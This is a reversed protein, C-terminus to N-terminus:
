SPPEALARQEELLLRQVSSWQELVLPLDREAAALEGAEAAHQMHAATAALRVAGVALCSGKLKHAISRVDELVAGLTAQNLAAILPPTRDLFLELLRPSREEDSLEPAGTLSEVSLAPLASVTTQVASDPRPPPRPLSGSSLTRSAATWRALTSHLLDARLPKTLYDDMGAAMCKEREKLLVHATLALIPTHRGAPERRRIDRTADYGDMVPMQCDMLVAAYDGGLVAQVAEEGNCAIDAAYGLRELQQVAVFRNVENDDVVLIRRGSSSASAVRPTERQPGSGSAFSRTLADYLESARVPQAVAARVRAPIPGELRTGPERLLLVPLAKLKQNESQLDLFERASIDVSNMSLLAAAFPEGRDAAVQARDLAELGSADCVAIMDWRELQQQISDRVSASDSVVLVQRRSGEDEPKSHEAAELPLTFWFRSGVGPTSELGLSGGLAEVLRRSIALGLGTGGQTRVSSGDVQSFARFLRARDPESIGIGTDEVSVLLCAPEVSVDVRLGVAVGGRETFKIANVILNTMVQRFRDGDTVFSTPVAEESRLRLELGKAYAREGVLDIVERALRRPSVPEKRIPLKGAEIKSFDLIDNVIAMLSRASVDMVEVYRAVLGELKLERILGIIGVIGNLPTRIEHSMNALFEGKIRAAELAVASKEELAAFASETVRLVPVVRWNVFALAAVLALLSGLAGIALVRNRLQVGAHLRATSVFLCVNGLQTGEIDVSAWSALYGEAVVALGPPHVLLQAEPLPSQGHVFLPTGESTSVILGLVDRDRLYRAAAERVLRANKTALGFESGRRLEAVGSEVKWILDARVNPTLRDFIASVSLWILSSSALVISTVMLSLSLKIRVSSLVREREALEAGESATPASVTM